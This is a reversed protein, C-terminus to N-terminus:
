VPRAPKSGLTPLPGPVITVTPDAHGLLAFAHPLLSPDELVASTVVADRIVHPNMSFGLERRTLKRLQGYFGDETLDQGCHTIWLRRSSQQGLLVPRHNELYERLQPQLDEPWQYTIPRRGKTDGESLHITVTDHVIRVHQGITLCILEARRLPRCSLLALMLGNRYRTARWPGNGVPQREARDMLELGLEYLQQAPVIRAQKLRSPRAQRWLRRMLARLVSLDANPDMVRVAECLNRIRNRVTVSRVQKQLHAVYARLNPKTLRDAPSQVGADALREPAKHCGPREGPFLWSSSDPALPPAGSRSLVAGGGAGM